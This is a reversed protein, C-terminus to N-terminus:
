PGGPIATVAIPDSADVLNDSLLHLHIADGQFLRGAIVPVVTSGRVLYNAGAYQRPLDNADSSWYTVSPVEPPLLARDKDAYVLIVGPSVHGDPRGARPFLNVNPMMWSGDASALLLGRGVTTGAFLTSLFLDPRAVGARQGYLVSSSPWRISGAPLECQTERVNDSLQQVGISEDGVEFLKSITRCRDTGAAQGFEIPVLVWAGGGTRPQLSIHGLSSFTPRWDQDAWLESLAFLPRYRLASLSAGKAREAVVIGLGLTRYAVYLNGREDFVSSGREIVEEGPRSLRWWGIGTGTWEMAWLTNNIVATAFPWGREDLVLLDDGRIAGGQHTFLPFLVPRPSDLKSRLTAPSPRGLALTDVTVETQRSVAGSRATLKATGVSLAYLTRGDEGVRVVAPASSELTM